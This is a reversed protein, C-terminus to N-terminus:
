DSLRNALIKSEWIIQCLIGCQNALRVHKTLLNRLWNPSRQKAMLPGVSHFLRGSCSRCSSMVKPCNLRDIFVNM